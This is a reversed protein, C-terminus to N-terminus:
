KTPVLVRSKVSHAGLAAGLIAAVLVTVASHALLNMFVIGVAGGVFSGLILRGKLGFLDGIHPSALLVAFLLGSVFGFAASPVGIMLPVLNRPVHGTDPEILTAIAGAAAGVLGWVVAWKLATLLVRGLSRGNVM